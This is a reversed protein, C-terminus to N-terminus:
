FCGPNSVSITLRFFTQLHVSLRSLVTCGVTNEACRENYRRKIQEPMINYRYLQKYFRSSPNSYKNYQDEFIEANHDDIFRQDNKAGLGMISSVFYLGGAYMQRPIALSLIRDQDDENFGDKKLSAADAKNVVIMTFRNDLEKMNNIAQYLKDNDTSDLSNFESVFIPLGNSLDEM